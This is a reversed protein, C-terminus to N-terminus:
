NGGVCVFVCEREFVRVCVYVCVCMCVCVCVCMCVQSTEPRSPDALVMVFKCVLEDALQELIDVTIGTFRQNFVCICLYM